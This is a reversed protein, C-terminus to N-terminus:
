LVSHREQNKAPEQFGWAIAEVVFWIYKGVLSSWASIFIIALFQLIQRKKLFQIYKQTMISKLTRYRGVPLHMKQMWRCIDRETRHRPAPWTAFDRALQTEPTRKAWFWSAPSRWKCHAWIRIVVFTHFMYCIRRLKRNAKTWIHVNNIRTSLLHTLRHFHPLPM